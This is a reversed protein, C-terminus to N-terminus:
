RGAFALQEADSAAPAAPANVERLSPAPTSPITPPRKGALVAKLQEQEFLVKAAYGGDDELNAAGVYHRLGETVSGARQICERLVQVGVRLNTVPDMAALDGGFAEYKNDHVRTMVQMLGQAGVPSQAFPNFSSEVAMVALVLTPDIRALKGAEWAELVLRNVAQPAVKYKRSIWQVLERQAPTLESADAATARALASPDPVLIDIDRPNRAEARAHLWALAQTEVSTRLQPQGAFVVILSLSVLGLLALSNHSLVLLGQAVDKAFVSFGGAVRHLRQRLPSFTTM